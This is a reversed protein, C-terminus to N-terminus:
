EIADTRAHFFSFTLVGLWFGFSQKEILGMM